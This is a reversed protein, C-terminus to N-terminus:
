EVVSFKDFLYNVLNAKTLNIYEEENFKAEQAIGKLEDVKLKNLETKSFGTEPEEEVKDDKLNVPEAGLELIQAKLRENSKTLIANTGKLSKITLQLSEITETDADKKTKLKQAVEEDLIEISDDNKALELAHEEAVESMCLHDFRVKIALDEEGVTYHVSSNKRNQNSTRIQVM